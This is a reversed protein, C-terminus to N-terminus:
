ERAVGGNIDNRSWLSERHVQYFGHMNGVFRGAKGPFDKGNFITVPIIEQISNTFFIEEAAEVDELKYFGERMEVGNKEALSMIFRRTVGNLIGTGVAPTFLVGEKYWFLNSVIGESLFGEKTLFVGEADMRGGLERKAFVNNMYHHSKLRETGEPTNRQLNLIVAEKETMGAAAPLPKSFVILNPESYPETQLGVGGNGASVNLRIYAHRFGNKEFLGELIKVIDERSFAAHINLAKLSGNLRELHDDLLFPHRNYVRFTEFVGLGYLFGHDLPSIRAEEQRVFNGNIYIYM